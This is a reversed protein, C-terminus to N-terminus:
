DNHPIIDLAPNYVETKVEFLGLITHFLNDHSYKQHRQQKLQEINVENKDFSDGFWMLMPVHKQSDPALMYPLGHLYLGKEGLSEGHDSVYVLAAEYSSDYKKLLNITKSLFFDTYLIANDYANNIEEQSCQELQNTKCAPTFREFSPPYRKYYAPGHNGMQHLVIFIDGNPHNEIYSPIRTLMGTDRCETDCEPNNDATKYSQHEVREAASKSSSNNDLWLVNVGARQLVDLLNESAKAKSAKFDSRGGLAFMCPVSIATSTGCSWVNTFNIINQQELSPNTKKHYGNLSFHDARATEGVILVVLERESDGVTHQADLGIFTFPLANNQFHHGIYKGINYIYYSPNAYYRLSKNERLFSAYFNGLSLITIVIILLAVGITLVRSLISKKFSPYTIPLRIIWIAPLVGLLLLYLFLKISVLDLAEHTDTKFINDIMVDDLIVNYSDMFYAAGASLLLLLILAPKLTYRYCFLSFIIINVCTFTIVLSLIFLASPLDLIPYIALVNQFFTINGLAIIFLATFVILKNPTIIKM